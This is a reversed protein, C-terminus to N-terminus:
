SKENLTKLMDMPPKYGSFSIGTDMVIHPTGELGFKSALKALKPIAKAKGCDAGNSPRNSNKFFIDVAEKKNASCLIEQLQKTTNNDNGMRSYMAYRVTIGLDNYEQMEDHLRHCYPCSPDTFVTITHLEKGKAKYVILESENIDKM